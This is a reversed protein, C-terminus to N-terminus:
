STEDETLAPKKPPKGKSSKGAKRGKGSNLDSKTKQLRSFIEKFLAEPTNQSLRKDVQEVQRSIGELAEPTSPTQPPTPPGSSACAAGSTSPGCASVM